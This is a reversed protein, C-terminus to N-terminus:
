SPRGAVLAVPLCFEVKGDGNTRMGAGIPPVVGATVLTWTRGGHRCAVCSRPRGDSEDCFCLLCVRLKSDTTATRAGCCACDIPTSLWIRRRVTRILTRISRTM